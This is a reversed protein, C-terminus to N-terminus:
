GKNKVGKGVIPCILCALVGGICATFLQMVGFNVAIVAGAKSPLFAPAIWKVILLYQIAFKCVAATIVSVLRRLIDALKKGKLLKLMLCIVLVYTLNGVAIAPVVLIQANIGLLYAFFPSAVAAAAGVSWGYLL